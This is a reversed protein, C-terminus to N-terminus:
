DLWDHDEHTYTSSPTPDRCVEVPGNGSIDEDIGGSAGFVRAVNEHEKKQYADYQDWWAQKISTSDVRDAFYAGAACYVTMNTAYGLILHVGSAMAQLEANTGKLFRCTNLVVWEMDQDGWDVESWTLKDPLMKMGFPDWDVFFRLARPTETETTGHGCWVAFDVSDAYGWDVAAGWHM